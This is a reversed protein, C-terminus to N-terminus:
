HFNEALMLSTRADDLQVYLLYQGDPSVSLGPAAHYPFKELDGM